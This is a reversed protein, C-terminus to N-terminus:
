KMGANIWCEIKQIDADSLKPAKEPMKPYGKLYKITGLLEGNNAGKKAAEIKYFNYGAKENKNHCKTCNAELIPKIDKDYTLEAVTTCDVKQPTQATQQTTKCAFFLVAIASVSFIIKKM